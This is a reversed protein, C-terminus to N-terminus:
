LLPGCNGADPCKPFSPNGQESDSTPRRIVDEPHQRAFEALRDMGLAPKRSPRISLTDEIFYEAEFERPGAITHGRVVWDPPPKCFAGNICQIVQGALFRKRRFVELAYNAKRRTVFQEAGREMSMIVGDPDRKYLWIHFHVDAM